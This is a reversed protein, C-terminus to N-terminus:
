ACQPSIAFFTSLHQHLGERGPSSLTFPTDKRLEVIKVTFYSESPTITKLLQLLKGDPKEKEDDDKKSFLDNEPRITDSTPCGILESFRFNGSTIGEEHETGRPPNPM